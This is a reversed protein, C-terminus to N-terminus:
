GLRRAVELPSLRPKDKPAKELAKLVHQKVAADYRIEGRAGFTKPIFQLAGLDLRGKVKLYGIVTGAGGMIKLKDKKRNLFLLFEGEQLKEPPAKLKRAIEALGDHGLGMHVDDIVLAFKM